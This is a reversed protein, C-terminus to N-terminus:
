SQGGKGGIGRKEETKVCQWLQLKFNDTHTSVGSQVGFLQGGWKTALLEEGHLESM